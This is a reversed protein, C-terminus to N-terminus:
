HALPTDIVNSYSYLFLYSLFIYLNTLLYQYHFPLNNRTFFVQYVKKYLYIITCISFSMIIVEANRKGVIRLFVFMEACPFYISTLFFFTLYNVCLIHCFLIPINTQIKREYFAYFVVNRSISFLCFYVFM